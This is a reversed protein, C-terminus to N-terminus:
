PQQNVFEYFSDLLAEREENAKTYIELEKDSLSTQFLKENEKKSKTFPSKAWLRMAKIIENDSHTKKLDAYIKAAGSTDGNRLASRMRTYSPDDTMVQQWGTEKKLGEKDMFRDALHYVQNVASQGVQTKVGAVSAILQRPLAGPPNPAIQNPLLAHGAARAPIGLTIPAAGAGPTIQSLGARLRAGSTSYKYGMPDEGTHFISAMKGIPGLRNEGMKVIRDFVQPKTEGLRIYDHTTEAFVSM